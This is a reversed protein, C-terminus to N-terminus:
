TSTRIKHVKYGKKGDSDSLKVIYSYQIGDGPSDSGIPGDETPTTPEVQYFHLLM